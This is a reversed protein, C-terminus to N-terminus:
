YDSRTVKCREAAFRGLPNAKLLSSPILSYRVQHTAAPSTLRIPAAKCVTTRAWLCGWHTRCVRLLTLALSVYSGAKTMRKIVPHDRPSPRSYHSQAHECCARCVIYDFGKKPDTNMFVAQKGAPKVQPPQQAQGSRAVSDCACSQMCFTTRKPTM